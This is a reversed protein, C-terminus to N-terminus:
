MFQMDAMHLVGLVYLGFMPNSSFGAVSSFAMGFFGSVTVTLRRARRTRRSRASFLSPRLIADVPDASLCPVQQDIGLLVRQDLHVHVKLLEGVPDAHQLGPLSKCWWSRCVWGLAAGDPGAAAGRALATAPRVYSAWRHANGRGHFGFARGRRAARCAM